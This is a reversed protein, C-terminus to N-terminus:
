TVFAGQRRQRGAYTNAVVKSWEWCYSLAWLSVLPRQASFLRGGLARAICWDAARVAQKARRALRWLGGRRAQAPGGAEEVQELCPQYTFASLLLPLM